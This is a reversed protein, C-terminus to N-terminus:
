LLDFFPFIQYQHWAISNESFFFWVIFQVWSFFLVILTGYRRFIKVKKFIYPLYNLVFIQLPILYLGLRDVFVNSELLLVLFFAIISFLSLWFWLRKYQKNLNFLKQFRLYVAGSLMSTFVRIVGGSSKYTNEIYGYILSSLYHQLFVFFLAAAFVVSAFITIFQYRRPSHIFLLAPAFLIATKHFTAAAFLYFTFKIFSSRKVALIAFLILGIAASQRTYGMSVVTILYPFACALGLYKNPLTLCFSALGAFFIVSCILNTLYIGGFFNSGLWNLLMYSPDNILVAQQLSLGATLNLLSIYPNWDGGVKHRFGVFIILICIIVFYVARLRRPRVSINYDSYRVTHLSLATLSFFVFFYVAM